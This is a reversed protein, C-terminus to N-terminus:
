PSPEAVAPGDADEWLMGEPASLSRRLAVRSRSAAPQASPATDMAAAPACPSASSARAIQADGHFLAAPDPPPAPSALLAPHVMRVWAVASEADFGLRSTLYSLVLAGVHGPGDSGSQVAILGPAADAVALFRDIARLMHPSTPDTDLDEVEIAQALFAARDYACAHLCVAVDVGLEAFLDAFFAASFRRVVGDGSEDSDMWLQKDPLHAPTPFCIIKNPVVMHIDGNVPSAYHLMEEVEVPVVKPSDLSAPSSPSGLIMSRSLHLWGLKSAHSLARWCDHVSTGMADPKMFDFCEDLSGFLAAVQEFAMQEELILFGGFLMAVKSRLGADSRGVCAILTKNPHRRLELRIASVFTNLQELSSHACYELLADTRFDLIKVQNHNGHSGHFRANLESASCLAVALRANVHKIIPNSCLM